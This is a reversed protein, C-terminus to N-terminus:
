YTDEASVEQSYDRQDDKPYDMLVGFFEATVETISKKSGDQADWSRQETNGIVIVNDGKRVMSMMIATKGFAKVNHWTTVKTWEQDGKKKFSRNTALSFNCVDTGGQLTKLEADKGARGVLITQNISFQM